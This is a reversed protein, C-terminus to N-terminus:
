GKFFTVGFPWEPDNDLDNDDGRSFPPSPLEQSSCYSPEGYPFQIGKGVSAERMLREMELQTDRWETQLSVIKQQTAQHRRCLDHLRRIFVHNNAVPSPGSMSPFASSTPLPNLTPAQTWKSPMNSPFPKNEAPFSACPSFPIPVPQQSPAPAAPMVRMDMKGNTHNHTPTASFATFFTSMEERSPISAGPISSNVEPSATSDPKKKAKGKRKRKISGLLEPSERLFM